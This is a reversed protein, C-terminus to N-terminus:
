NGLHLTNMDLKCQNQKTALSRQLSYHMGSEGAGTRTELLQYKLHIYKNICVSSFGDWSEGILIHRETNPLTECKGIQSRYLVTAPSALSNALATEPKQVTYIGNQGHM